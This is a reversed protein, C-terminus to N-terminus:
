GPIAAASMITHQSADARNDRLFVTTQGACLHCGVALILFTEPSGKIFDPPMLFVLVLFAAIGKPTHKLGPAIIRVYHCAALAGALACFPWDMHRYADLPRSAWSEPQLRPLVQRKGPAISVSHNCNYTDSVIPAM